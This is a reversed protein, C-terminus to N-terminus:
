DKKGTLKNKIRITDNDDTLEVPTIYQEIKMSLQPLTEFKLVKKVYSVASGYKKQLGLEKYRRLNTALIQCCCDKLEKEKIISSIKMLRARIEIKKDAEHLNLLDVLYFIFTGKKNIIKDYNNVWLNDGGLDQTDTINVSRNNSGKVLFQKIKEQDTTTTDTDNNINRLKNWLTTKGSGKSGLIVINKTNRTITNSLMFVGSIFSSAFKEVNETTLGYDKLTAGFDDLVDKSKDIIEKSADFMDKSKELIEKSSSLLDKSSDLFDKSSQIYDKASKFFNKDFKIM